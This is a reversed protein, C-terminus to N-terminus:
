GSEPIAARFALHLIRLEAMSWVPVAVGAGHVEQRARVLADGVFNLLNATAVADVGDTKLGEVLHDARGIGGMLIMPVPILSTRAIAALDLGRGTGDHDVSQVCVEGAGLDIAARIRADLGARDVVQGRRREPVRAPDACVDFGAVIAQSGYKFALEEVLRPDRQLAANMLIKDAGVAFLRDAEERSSIGGGVTVPVFCEEALLTVETRFRERMAATESVDLIMLEDIGQSVELIGYNELVWRLDGIRQLRFNRSLMYSGDRYLLAFIIRKM